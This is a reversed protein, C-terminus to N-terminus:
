GTLKFEERAPSSSAGPTSPKMYKLRSIAVNFDNGSNIQEWLIELAQRKADTFGRFFTSEHDNPTRAVYGVANCDFCRMQNHVTGNKFTMEKIENNTSNCKRCKM